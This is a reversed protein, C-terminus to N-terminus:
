AYANANSKRREKVVDALPITTPRVEEEKEKPIEIRSYWYDIMAKKGIRSPCTAHYGDHGSYDMICEPIREQVGTIELLNYNVSYLDYYFSRKDSV